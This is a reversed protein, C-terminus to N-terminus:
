DVIYIGKHVVVQVEQGPDCNHLPKNKVMSSQYDYPNIVELTPHVRSVYTAHKKLIHYNLDSYEAMVSGWTDMDKLKIKKGMKEIRLVRDESTLIIDGKVFGPLKVLINVRYINKSTQRNKSFLHPSSKYIGGCAEHLEKGLAQAIRKNTMYLDYGERVSKTNNIFIGKHRLKEVKGKLLEISDELVRFNACRVQLVAEYYETGEKSCLDCKALKLVINVVHEEDKVRVILENEKKEGPSQPLDFDDFKLVAKPYSAKIKKAVLEKLTKYPKWKNKDLYKSCSCYTIKISKM